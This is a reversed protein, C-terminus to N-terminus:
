MHDTGLAHFQDANLHVYMEKLVSDPEYLCSTMQRLHAAHGLLRAAPM